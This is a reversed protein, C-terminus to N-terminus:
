VYEWTAGMVKVKVIVWNLVLMMDLPFVLEHVSALEMLRVRLVVLDHGLLMAKELVRLKV